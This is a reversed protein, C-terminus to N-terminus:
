LTSISFADIVHIHDNNSFHISYCRYIMPHIWRQNGNTLSLIELFQIQAIEYRVTIIVVLLKVQLHLLLYTYYYINCLM